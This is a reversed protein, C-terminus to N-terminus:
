LIKFGIQRCLIQMCWNLLFPSITHFNHLTSFVSRHRLFNAIYPLMLLGCLGYRGIKLCSHHCLHGHNIAGGMMAVGVIM